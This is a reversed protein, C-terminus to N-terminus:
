NKLDVDMKEVGSIKSIKIGTEYKIFLYDFLFGGVLKSFQENM